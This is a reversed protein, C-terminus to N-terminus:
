VKSEGDSFFKRWIEQSQQDTITGDKMVALLLERCREPNKRNARFYEGLEHQMRRAIKEDPLPPKDKDWTQV